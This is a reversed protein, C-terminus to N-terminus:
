RHQAPRLPIVQDNNTPITPRAAEPTTLLAVITIAGGCHPCDRHAVPQPLQAATAPQPNLSGFPANSTPEVLTTSAPPVLGAERRAAAIRKCDASCYIRNKAQRGTATFPQWCVPCTKPTANYDPDHPDPYHNPSM